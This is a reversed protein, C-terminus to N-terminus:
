SFVDRRRLGPGQPGRRSQTPAQLTVTWQPQVKADTFTGALLQVGRAPSSSTWHIQRVFSTPGALAQAPLAALAALTAIATLLRRKAVVCERVSTRM